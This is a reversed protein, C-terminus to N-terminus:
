CYTFGRTPPKRPQPKDVEKLPTFVIEGENIELIKGEAHIREGDSFFIMDGGTCQRPTGSVTWWCYDIDHKELKHEVKEKSARILVDMM